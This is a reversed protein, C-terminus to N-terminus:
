KHPLPHRIRIDFQAHNPYQDLCSIVDCMKEMNIGILNIRLEIQKSTYKLENKDSSIIEATCYNINKVLKPKNM